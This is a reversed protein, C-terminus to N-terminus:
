ADGEDFINIRRVDELDIRTLKLLGFPYLPSYYIYKPIKMTRKKARLEHRKRGKLFALTFCSFSYHWPTLDNFPIIDMKHCWDCVVIM